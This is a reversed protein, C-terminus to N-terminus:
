LTVASHQQNNKDNFFSWFQWQSNKKVTAQLIHAFITIQANHEKKKKKLFKTCSM